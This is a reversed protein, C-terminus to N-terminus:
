DGAVFFMWTGDPAIGLRYFSYAGFEVMDKYDAGTVIRFLEVKQQPTLVKLPMRAFYPWLYIEQPTGPDVHVFGADLIGLLISLVEVGESDPFTAKWSMIPAKDQTFSFIPAPDSMEMTAVIQHLDGTRAAAIIRERTRAVAPPLRSPDVIIDPAVAAHPGPRVLHGDAKYKIAAFGEQPLPQTAGFGEQPLPQGAAPPRVSETRVRNQALVAGSAAVACLILTLCIRLPM